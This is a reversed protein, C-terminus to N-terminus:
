APLLASPTGTEFATALPVPPGHLECGAVGARALPWYVATATWGLEASFAGPALLGIMNVTSVAGGVTPKVGGFDGDLLVFGVNVPVALSVVVTTTWTKLEALRSTVL